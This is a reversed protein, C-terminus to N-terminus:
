DRRRPYFEQLKYNEFIPNENMVPSLQFPMLHISNDMPVEWEMKADRLPIPAIFVATHRPSPLLDPSFYMEAPLNSTPVQTFSQGNEPQYERIKMSSATPIGNKGPYILLGGNPTPLTVKFGAVDPVGNTTRYSPETMQGFSLHCIGVSLLILLARKM